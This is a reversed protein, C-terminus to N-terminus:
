LHIVVRPETTATRPEYVTSGGLYQVMARVRVWQGDLLIYTSGNRLQGPVTRGSPLVVNVVPWPAAVRKAYTVVVAPEPATANWNSALGTEGSVPRMAMAVLPCRMELARAAAELEAMSGGFGIYARRVGVWWSAHLAYPGVDVTGDSRLIATTWNTYQDPAGDCPYGAGDGPSVVQRALYRFGQEVAQPYLALKGAVLDVAKRVDQEWDPEIGNGGDGARNESSTHFSGSGEQVLVALMFFPPVGATDAVDWLRDFKAQSFILGNAEAQEGLRRLAPLSRWDPASM